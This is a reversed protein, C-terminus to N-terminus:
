RKDILGSIPVQGAEVEQSSHITSSQTYHTTDTPSGAKWGLVYVCSRNRYTFSGQPGQGCMPGWVMIGLGTAAM